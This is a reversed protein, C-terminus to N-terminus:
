GQKVIDDETIDLGPDPGLSWMYYNGTIKDKDGNKIEDPVPKSRFDPLPVFEGTEDWIRYYIIPNGFNDTVDSQKLGYEKMAELFKTNNAMGNAGIESGAPYVGYKLQYKKILQELANLKFTTGLINVQQVIMPRLALTLGMLVLIVSIVIMLEVLTFGNPLRKCHHQRMAAGHSFAANIFTRVWFIDSKAKGTLVIVWEWRRLNCEM